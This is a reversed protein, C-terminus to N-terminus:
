AWKMFVVANPQQAYWGTPLQVSATPASCGQAVWGIGLGLVVALGVVLGRLKM